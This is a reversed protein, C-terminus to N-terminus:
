IVDITFETVSFSNTANSTQFTGGVVFAINGQSTVSVSTANGSTAAMITGAIQGVVSVPALTNSTSDWMAEVELSWNKTTGSGPAVTSATVFTGATTVSGVYLTPNFAGTNQATVLGMARVKIMKGVNLGSNRRAGGELLSLAGSPLAVQLPAGASNVALTSVTTSAVTTTVPLGSVGAVTNQNAM